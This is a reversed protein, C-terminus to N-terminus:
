LSKPSCTVNLELAATSAEGGLSRLPELMTAVSLEVLSAAEPSLPRDGAESSLAAEVRAHVRTLDEDPSSVVIRIAIAGPTGEPLAFADPRLLLPACLDDSGPGGDAGLAIAAWAGVDVRALGDRVGATVIARCLTTGADLAGFTEALSGPPCTALRACSSGHHPIRATGRPCTAASPVCGPHGGSFVPAGGDGCVSSSALSGSAPGCAGTSVDIEEGASCTRAVCGSETARAAAGCYADAVAPPV